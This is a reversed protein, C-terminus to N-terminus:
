FEGAEFIGLLTRLAVLTAFDKALAHFALTIGWLIISIGLYKAIPLRQIM